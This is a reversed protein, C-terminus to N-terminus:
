KRLPPPGRLESEQRIYPPWLLWLLLGMWEGAMAASVDEDAPVVLVEISIVVVTTAAADGADTDDYASCFTPALRTIEVCCVDFITM